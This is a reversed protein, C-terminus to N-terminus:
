AKFLSAFETSRYDTPQTRKGGTADISTHSVGAMDKGTSGYRGPRKDFKHRVDCNSQEFGKQEPGSLQVSPSLDQSTEQKAVSQVITSGQNTVWHSTSEM